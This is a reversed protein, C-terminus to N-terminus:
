DKILKKTSIQNGCKIELLYIGKLLEGVPVMVQGDKQVGLSINKVPVGSLTLLRISTNGSETASFKVLVQEKAPVPNMNTVISNTYVLTDKAKKPATIEFRQNGRSMTDTTTTFSYCSDEELPM